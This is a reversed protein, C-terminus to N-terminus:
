EEIQMMQDAISLTQQLPFLCECRSFEEPDSVIKKWPKDDLSENEVFKDHHNNGYIHVCLKRRSPSEKLLYKDFFRLVDTKELLKAAQAIDQKRHFHYSRNQIVHFHKSSESALNKCRELLSKRVAEVHSQMDSPSMQVLKTRFNALFVEIRSDM